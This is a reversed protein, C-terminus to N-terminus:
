FDDELGMEGSAEWEQIQKFADLASSRHDLGGEHNGQANDLLNHMDKQQQETLWNVSSKRHSMRFANSSRSSISGRFVNSFSSHELDGYSDGMSMMSVASSRPHWDMPMISERSGATIGSAAQQLREEEAQQQREEEELAEAARLAASRLSSSPTSTSGFSMEIWSPRRGFEVLVQTTPLSQRRQNEGEDDSWNESPRRVMAQRVWNTQQQQQQQYQNPSATQYPNNMAIAGAHQNMYMGSSGAPMVASSSVSVPPMSMMTSSSVSVQQPRCGRFEDFMSSKKSVKTVDPLSAVVEPSNSSISDDNAANKKQATVQDRLSHGVKERAQQDGIDYWRGNDDDQKLFYAGSQRIDDVISVVVATKATKNPADIYRNVSNQILSRFAVNGSHNWNRKGRGCCIDKPGPMYNDPLSFPNQQDQLSRNSLASELNNLRTPVGIPNNGGSNSSPYDAMTERKKKPQTGFLLVFVCM